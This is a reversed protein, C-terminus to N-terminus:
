IKEKDGERRYRLNNEIFTYLFNNLYIIKINKKFNILVSKLIIM